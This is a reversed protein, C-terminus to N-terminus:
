YMDHKPSVAVIHLIDQIKYGVIRGAQSFRFVLLKTEKTVTPPLSIKFQEVGIKEYGCHERPKSHIEKWTFQSIKLLLDTVSAKDRTECKSLCGKQGYKINHFSFAPKSMEYDPIEPVSIHKTNKSQTNIKSLNNRTM